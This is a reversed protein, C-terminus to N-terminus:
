GVGGFPRGRLMGIEVKESIASSGFSFYNVFHSDFLYLNAINKFYFLIQAINCLLMM